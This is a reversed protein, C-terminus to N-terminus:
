SADGWLRVIARTPSTLKPLVIVVGAPLHAGHREVDPNAAILAELAGPTQGYFRYAIADLVDGDVSTITRLEDAM